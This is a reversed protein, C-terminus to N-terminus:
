RQYYILPGREEERENHNPGREEECENNHELCTEVRDLRGRDGQQTQRMDNVVQTLTDLRGMIDNLRTAFANPDM